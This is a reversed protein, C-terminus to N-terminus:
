FAQRLLVLPGLHPRELWCGHFEEGEEGEADQQRRDDEEERVAGAEQLDDVVRLKLKGWWAWGM